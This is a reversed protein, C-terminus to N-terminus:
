DAARGLAYELGGVRYWRYGHAELGIRHTGRTAISVDDDILDTLREGGDGPVQISAESPEGSFNHLCVVGSGRWQYQLALVHPSRTSLTRWSGWGIEPCEKRVRIMRIVWHLLSDPDRRQDEVNVDSYAYIGKSVVPRVLKEASSFGANKEPSWQMPTRVSARERLTLNDGMGIEDGYRLVPTGPLSLLLSYALEIRQREGLMPALRRRIGRGYLQMREEPGFAAFVVQRQEPKLRGLDLEDHNRLFQAWQASSPIRSTARLAAALPRADGSALAYFLHQNVWFNFMMHLGEGDAFYRPAEGPKVNAEGLLIADGIRWQLFERFERLWEFRTQSKGDASPKELLFPVADLRFGAIGLQLWFGMIRRVEARVEANAMNLDPEFDYFRHFYYERADRDYTWTTEQVGPFVVGTEWNAPRKKSWVYWNHLHSDRPRAAKFWPHRNSTHNAVLDVLVRIGRSSAEHAFEVFDGTSGYRPDVGYYDAVDYGDDRHPSRQFPTLWLTNVGLTELYDLRRALGEFDGCGDGNGDMFTEVSLSYIIANRYWLDGLMHNANGAADRAFGRAILRQGSGRQV